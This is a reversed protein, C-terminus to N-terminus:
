DYCSQSLITNVVEGNLLIIDRGLLTPLFPMFVKHPYAVSVKVSHGECLSTDPYSVFVQVDSNTLNIPSQSSMRVRQEISVTDYPYLSGYVAGEQAADKLQVYQFFAVGFEAAGGLLLMLFVFTIGLEVLSQGKEKIVM